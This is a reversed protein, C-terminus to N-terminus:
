KEISRKTVEKESAVDGGGSLAPQQLEDYKSQLTDLLSRTLAQLCRSDELAEHVTQVGVAGYPDLTHTNDAGSETMTTFMRLISYFSVVKRPRASVKSNVPRLTKAGHRDLM